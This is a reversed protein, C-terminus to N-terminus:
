APLTLCFQAGAPKTVNQATINGGLLQMIERCIPLGLGSAAQKYDGVAFRAHSSFLDAMKEEPIGPGNDRILIRVQPGIKEYEIHIHPEPSAYKIANELLISIVRTLLGADTMISFGAPIASVTIKCHHLHAGQLLLCDQILLGLVCREKKPTVMDAELRAIDLMNTVFRDLRYAEELATNLLISKKGPSLKRGTRGCFELSGIICSLPTKIDHSVSSLVNHHLQRSQRKRADGEMYLDSSSEMNKAKENMM